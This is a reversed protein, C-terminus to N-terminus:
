LYTEKIKFMENLKRIQEPRGLVVLKCNPLMKTDAEPNIVFSGSAEKYGIVTCGTVGRLNLESLSKYQYKEPLDDISVEELTISDTGEIALHRVFDVLDPLVVLSAMHDGGIKDPMVIKDAGALQLKKQSSEESARAIINLQNNLQRSSLVIFLNDADNPLSTILVEAREIGAEILVEDENANGHIFLFDDGEKEIISEDSEIVVFPRKYRKLKLAAQKGNRGFGCIIVHGSLQNIKRKMKKLKLQQPTSRVLVYETIVTIAYAVIFVSSLILVITFVKADNDLPRVESFGVTTITIVTMYAADIFSYDGFYQYGVVGLLFVFVLLAVATFFKSRFLKFMM